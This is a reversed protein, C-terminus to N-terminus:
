IDVAGALTMDLIPVIGAIDLLYFREAEKDLLREGPPWSPVSIGEKLIAWKQPDEQSASVRYFFQYLVHGVEHLFVLHKDRRQLGKFLSISFKYKKDWNWPNYYHPETSLDYCPVLLGDPKEHNAFCVNSLHDSVFRRLSDITLPNREIELELRSKGLQSNGM